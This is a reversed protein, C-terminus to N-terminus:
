RRPSHVRRHGVDRDAPPRHGQCQVAEFGELAKVERFRAERIRREIARQRRLDALPGILRGLFELLSSREKEAQAITADLEAASLPIRLTQFHELVRQCLDHNLSTKTNRRRNM